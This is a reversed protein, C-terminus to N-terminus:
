RKAVTVEITATGSGLGSLTYNPTGNIPWYGSPSSIEGSTAATTTDTFLVTGVASNISFTVADDLSTFIEVSFLYGGVLFTSLDVTSADASLVIQQTRYIVDTGERHVTDDAFVPLYFFLVMTAAILLKKM